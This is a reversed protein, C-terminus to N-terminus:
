KRSGKSKSGSAAEAREASARLEEAIERAEDPEFDMPVEFGDGSVYIRVMGSTTPGIQLNASVDSQRDISMTAEPEPNTRDIQGAVNIMGVCAACGGFHRWDSLSTVGSRKRDPPLTTYSQESLRDIRARRFNLSFLRM